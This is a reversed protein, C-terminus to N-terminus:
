RLGGLLPGAGLAELRGLRAERIGAPVPLPARSPPLANLHSCRAHYPTAQMAEQRGPTPAQQQPMKPRTQRLGPATPMRPPTQPKCGRCVGATALLNEMTPPPLTDMLKVAPDPPSLRSLPTVGATSTSATTETSSVMASYSLTPLAWLAAMPGSVQRPATSCQCGPRCWLLEPLIAGQCTGGISEPCWDHGSPSM